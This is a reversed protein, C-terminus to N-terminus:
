WGCRSRDRASGPELVLDAVAEADERVLSGASASAIMAAMSTGGSKGM